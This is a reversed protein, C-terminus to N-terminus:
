ELAVCTYTPWYRKLSVQTDANHRFNVNSTEHSIENRKLTRTKKLASKGIVLKNTNTIRSCAHSENCLYCSSESQEHYREPLGVGEDGNRM